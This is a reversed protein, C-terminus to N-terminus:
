TPWTEKPMENHDFELGIGLSIYKTRNKNLCIYFKSKWFSNDILECKHYVWQSCFWVVFVCFCLDYAVYLFIKLLMFPQRSANAVVICFVSFLTM